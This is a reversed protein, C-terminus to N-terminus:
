ETKTKLKEKNKMETSRALNLQGDQWSKHARLYVTDYRIYTTTGVGFRHVATTIPTATPTKRPMQRRKRSWQRRCRLYSLSKHLSSYDESSTLGVVRTWQARRWRHEYELEHELSSAVLLV